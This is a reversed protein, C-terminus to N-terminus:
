AQLSEGDKRKLTTPFTPLADVMDQDGSLVRAGPRAVEKGKEEHNGKLVAKNARPNIIIGGTTRERMEERGAAGLERPMQSPASFSQEKAQKEKQEKGTRREDAVVGSDQRGRGVPKGAAPTNFSLIGL